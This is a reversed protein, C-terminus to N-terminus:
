SYGSATSPSSTALRCSQLADATWGKLSWREVLHAIGNDWGCRRLFDAIWGMWGWRLVIHAIGLAAGCLLTTVAARTTGRKWYLGGLMVAGAPGLWVNNVMAFYMLISQNPKWFLSYVFAIVGVRRDVGAVGLSTGQHELPQKRFPLIIDQLLVGGWAHMFGNHSSILAAMMIVCFLGVLGPPLLSPLTATM